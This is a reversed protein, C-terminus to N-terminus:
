IQACPIDGISVSYLAALQRIQLDRCPYVLNLHELLEDPLMTTLLSIVTPTTFTVNRHFTFQSPSQRRSSNAGFVCARSM